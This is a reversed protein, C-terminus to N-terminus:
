NENDDKKRKCLYIGGVSRGQITYIPLYESLFELDRTITRYSVGFQKALENVTVHSVETLIKIIRGRREYANM